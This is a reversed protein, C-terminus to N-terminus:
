SRALLPPWSRRWPASTRWPAKPVARTAATDRSATAVRRRPEGVNRPGTGDCRRLEPAADDETTTVRKRCLEQNWQEEEWAGETRELAEGDEADRRKERLAEVDETAEAEAAGGAAARAM